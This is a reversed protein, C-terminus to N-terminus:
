ALDVRVAEYIFVRPVVTEVWGARQAFECPKAARLLSVSQVRRGRPVRVRVKVDTLPLFEERAFTKKWKNGTNALLHLLITNHAATLHPILGSRYEVTYPRGAALTSEVLSGFYTRFLSIRTEEYAAELASGIYIVAGKGHKRTVIAPGLLMNRGRDFNEALVEADGATEFDVIQPDQPIIEAGSPHRLYLDPLERPETSKLSAGILKSLAFNDRMKGNEDAVSTLHTALLVGGDEVYKAIMACQEASLCPANPVYLLRYRALARASMEYDLFPEADHGNDKLLQFAGHYYNPYANPQFFHGRFWALTQTSVLIGTQPRAELGTLVSQHKQSFDYIDKVYRGAEYQLPDHPMGFFRDMGWYIMGVGAAQAVAGDMLLDQSEVPRGMWGRVSKDSLHERNHQTHNGVYTWIIKGTSKGLQLNFLKEEPTDSAEFMFGDAVPFARSRPDMSHLLGTNNYLVPVDRVQRIMEHVERLLGACQERLWLRYEHYDASSVDTEDVPVPKGRASRYATECHRCHCIRTNFGQYPGDFYMVDVSYGTIVERVLEVVEQRLPSNICGEFKQPYGLHSTKMPVGHIDRKVWNEYNPNGSDPDMFPHNLPLYGVVKLAAEHFLDVTRKLPDDSGLDPHVPYKTKTPFYAFFSAAPFRLSDANVAKAIALAKEPSYSYAPFFPFNYAEALLIRTHRIWDHASEAGVEGAARSGLMLATTQLLKRRSIEIM